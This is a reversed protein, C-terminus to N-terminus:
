TSQEFWKQTDKVLTHAQHLNQGATHQMHSGFFTSVSKRLLDGPTCIHFHSQAGTKVRFIFMLTVTANIKNFAFSAIEQFELAKGRNIRM